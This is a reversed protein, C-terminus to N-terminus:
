EVLKLRPRAKAPPDDGAPDTPEVGDYDDDSFVIGKGNEKAYIAKVLRMSVDIPTAIGGFRASCVLRDGAMLLDRVASPGVNLVLKGDVVFHAPVGLGDGPEILVHPTLGNDVIWEYFARLLYPRPSNM